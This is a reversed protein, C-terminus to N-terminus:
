KESSLDEISKKCIIGRWNMTVGIISFTPRLGGLNAELPRYKNAKNVNAVQLPFPDNVIQVDLVAVEEESYAM